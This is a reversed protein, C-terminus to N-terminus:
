PFPEMLAGHLVRMKYTGPPFEVDRMGRCWLALAVKYRDWFQELELLAAELAKKQGRGAKVRPKARRGERKRKEKLKAASISRKTPRMSLCKRAGMFSRGQSRIKERAAAIQMEAEREILARVEDDSREELGFRRPMKMQNEAWEPYRTRDTSFWEPCRERVVMTGVDKAAMGFGPWEEPSYVAGAAVPNAIIYGIAEVIAQATTCEVINLDGPEWVVGEWNPRLKNIGRALDRNLNEYMESLNGLDAQVGQHYHTSMCVSAIMDVEFQTAYLSQLYRFLQNIEHGPTFLYRFQLTSRTVLSVAGPRILRPKTM